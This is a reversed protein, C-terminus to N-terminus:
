GGGSCEAARQEFRERDAESSPRRHNSEFTDGFGILAVDDRQAVDREVDAFTLEDEDHPRRARPLRRRKAQQQAFLVRGGAADDDGAAVDGAEARPLDRLQPAVDPADELVVLEQGVLCDVLVDRERLLDDPPGAM